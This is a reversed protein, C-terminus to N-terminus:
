RGFTIRLLLSHHHLTCPALLQYPCFRSILLFTFDDDDVCFRGCGVADLLMEDDLTVEYVRARGDYYDDVDGKGFQAQMQRRYDDTALAGVGNAVEERLPENAEAQLLPNAIRSQAKSAVLSREKLMRANEVEQQRLIMSQLLQRATEFSKELKDAALVAGLEDDPDYWPGDRAPGKASDEAKDNGNGEGKGGDETNQPAGKGFAIKIDEIAKMREEKFKKRDEATKIGPELFTDELAALKGFADKAGELAEKVKEIDPKCQAAEDREAFENLKEIIEDVGEQDDEM